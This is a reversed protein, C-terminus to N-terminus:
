EPTEIDKTVARLQSLSKVGHVFRAGNMLAQRAGEILEPRDLTNQSYAKAPVVPGMQFREFMWGLFRDPFGREIDNERLMQAGHEAIQSAIQRDAWWPTHYYVQSKFGQSQHGALHTVFGGPHPELPALITDYEILCFDEYQKGSTACLQFTQVLREILSRGAYANQGINYSGCGEPFVCKGDDTGIGIVHAAGSRRYFYDWHRAFTENAGPYSHILLLTSSM